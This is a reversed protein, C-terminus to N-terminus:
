LTRKGSIEAFITATDATSLSLGQTLFRFKCDSDIRQRPMYGGDTQSMIFQRNRENLYEEPYPYHAYEESYAPQQTNPDYGYGQYANYQDAPIM